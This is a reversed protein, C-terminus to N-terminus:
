INSIEIIQYGKTRDTNLQKIVRFALLTVHSMRQYSTIYSLCLLYFWVVHIDLLNFSLSSIRSLLKHCKFFIIIINCCFNLFYKDCTCLIVCAHFFFLQEYQLWIKWINVCACLKVQMTMEIFKTVYICFTYVLKLRGCEICKWPYLLLFLLTVNVFYYIYTPAGFCYIYLIDQM